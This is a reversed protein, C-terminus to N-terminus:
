AAVIVQSALADTGIVTVLYQQGPVVLRAFLGEFSFGLNIQGSYAFATSSGATLNYGIGMFGERIEYFPETGNATLAKVFQQLPVLTGNKEVIFIATGWLMSPMRDDVEGGVARALPSVIVLKITTYRSGDKASLNLSDPSLSANTVTLNATANQNVRQWWERGALGFTFGEHEMEETVQSSPVLLAVGGARIIFGPTSSSGINLVLPSIDIITASPKSGNVEIGGELIPIFLKANVVFATYNKGNFTVQASTVNLRLANYDGTPVRVAAITESINVTALLDITGRSSVRTWGSWNGAESVHVALNSYTVYVATVGAPVHPPDTILISLTGPTGPGVTRVLNSLVPAGALMSVGLIAAAIGLAAAGYLVARGKMNM